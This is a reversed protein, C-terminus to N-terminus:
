CSLSRLIHNFLLQSRVDNPLFDNQVPLVVRRALQIHFFRFSRLWRAFNFRPCSLYLYLCHNFLQTVASFSKEKTLLVSVEIWCSWGSFTTVTTKTSHDGSCLLFIAVGASIMVATLYEYFQYKKGSVCKGMLMVACFLLSTNILARSHITMTLTMTITMTIVMTIAM